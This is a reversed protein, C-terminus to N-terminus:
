IQNYIYSQLSENKLLINKEETNDPIDFVNRGKKKALPETNQTAHKSYQFLPHTQFKWLSLWIKKKIQPQQVRM